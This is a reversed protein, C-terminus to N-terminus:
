HAVFEFLAIGDVKGHKYIVTMSRKADSPDEITCGLKSCSSPHYDRKLTKVSDGVHLGNPTRYRSSTAQLSYETASKTKTISFILGPGFYDLTNLKGKYRFVHSPKGLKHEVQKFSSRVNVGAISTFPIIRNSLHAASAAAPIAIATLAIAALPGGCAPIPRRTFPRPSTLMRPM